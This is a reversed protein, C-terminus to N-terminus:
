AGDHVHLHTTCKSPHGRTEFDRNNCDDRNSPLCWLDATFLFKLPAVRPRAKLLSGSNLALVIRLQCHLDTCVPSSQVEMLMRAGLGACSCPAAVAERCPRGRLAHIAAGGASM